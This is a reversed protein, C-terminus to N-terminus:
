YTGPGMKQFAERVGQLRELHKEIIVQYNLDGSDVKWAQDTWYSLDELVLFPDAMAEGAWKKTNEWYSLANRYVQEAKNLSDLNASKWPYNFFYAVQKDFNRGLQLYNEILLLHVQTYFLARYKKWQQPNAIRGLANLPNAFPAHMAQELYYINEMAKDPDLYLQRHVMKYWQEAYLIKYANVSGLTGLLGILVLIWRKM